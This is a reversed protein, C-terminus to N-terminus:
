ISCQDDPSTIQIPRSTSLPRLWIVFSKEDSSHAVIKNFLFIFAVLLCQADKFLWRASKSKKQIRINQTKYIFYIIVVTPPGLPRPGRNRSGASGGIAVGSIACTNANSRNWRYAM